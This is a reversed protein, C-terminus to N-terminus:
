EGPSPVSALICPPTTLLSKQTRGFHIQIEMPKGAELSSEAMNFDQLM